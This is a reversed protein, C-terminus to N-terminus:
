EVSWRYKVIGGSDRAIYLFGERDVAIGEQDEEPLLYRAVVKGTRTMQLLLDEADSIAWLRDQGRDYRLDSLDTVGPNFCGAIKGRGDGKESKLPLEVQCVVSEDLDSSQNAVFFTGGEPHAADPVFAIGEIGPDGKKLMERGGFNRDLEFERKIKLSGPAVELIEADSEVAVYLLGTASDCTVGELDRNGLLRADVLIGDTKLEGIEGEDGVVYLTNRVPHFVIGSPSAFGDRDIDGLSQYRPAVPGGGGCALALALAAPGFLYTSFRM